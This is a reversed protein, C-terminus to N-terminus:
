STFHPFSVRPTLTDVKEAVPNAVKSFYFSAKRDGIFVVTNRQKRKDATFHSFVLGLGSSTGNVGAM